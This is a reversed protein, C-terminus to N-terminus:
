YESRAPAHARHGLDTARLPGSGAALREHREPGAISASEGRQALWMSGAATIGGFVAALLADGDILGLPPIGDGSLLRAAVMFAPVFLGAAIGAGLGFRVWSIQSLRRGRYFFSILASVFGGAIAGMIAVRTAIFIADLLWFGSSTALRLVAYTPITLGFWAAGWVVANKVAGKLRRLFNDGAMQQRRFTQAVDLDTSFV